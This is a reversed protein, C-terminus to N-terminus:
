TAALVSTAESAKVMIAYGRQFTQIHSRMAARAKRADRSTVAEVIKVHQDYAIEASGPVQQSKFIYERLLGRVTRLLEGLVRNHSATAIAFHFEVDMQLFIESAINNPNRMSKVLAQLNRFDEETGRQACLTVLHTELIIRAEALDMVDKESNLLGRQFVQNLFKSPGDAVFTGEGARMQVMGVFALSKLAERLTSRGVGLSRCLETESPLKQGATWRGRSIMDLVQAAVQESLTSRLVPKLMHM